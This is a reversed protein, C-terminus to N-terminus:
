DGEPNTSKWMRLRTFCRHMAKLVPQQSGQKLGLLFLSYCPQVVAWDVAIGLVASGMATDVTAASMVHCYLTIYLVCFCDLGLALFVVM